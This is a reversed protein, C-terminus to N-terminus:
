PYAKFDQVVSICSEIKKDTVIKSAIAVAKEALATSDAVGQLVIVDGRMQAHLFNIMLNHEFILSNVLRQCILMEQIKKEGVKEKEPTIITKTLTELLVVSEEISLIGTNLVSHFLTSDECSINYFSKHFGVRNTDSEQIRQLAKKEDWSFENMLRQKRIENPAIFRVSIVNPVNELIAFAGRGILICNNQSAAELIATQVYDLYEDRDKALSAFFGPKREDYKKLKDEPFGLNVIRKEIEKRDIFVYGLKDALASAIEDGLAAVQRSIAIVAM